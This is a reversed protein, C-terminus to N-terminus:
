PNKKQAEGPDNCITKAVNQLLRSAKIIDHATEPFNNNDFENAVEMVELALFRLRSALTMKLCPTKCEYPKFVDTM